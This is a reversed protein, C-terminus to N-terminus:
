AARRLEWEKERVRKARRPDLEIVPAGVVEASAIGGVGHVQHKFARVIFPEGIGSYRQLVVIDGLEVLPAGVAEASAIGGAGDIAAPDVAAVVDPQGVAEASGISSAAVVVDVQPGSATPTM